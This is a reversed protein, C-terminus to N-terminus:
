ASRLRPTGTLPLEVSRGPEPLLVTADATFVTEGRQNTGSTTLLVAHREDGGPMEQHWRDAVRGALHLCDGYLLPTSLHLRLRWLFGTDGCWHTIHQGALAFVLETPAAPAGLGAEHSAASDIWADHRDWQTWGTQPNRRLRGPLASLAKLHLNGAQVSRAEAITWVFLDSFTLPGKLLEPLLDGPETENWFRPRHGRGAPENELREVINNVDTASYQHIGREPLGRERVAVTAGVDAVPRGDITYSTETVIRTTAPSKSDHAVDVISSRAGLRAGLPIRDSWTARMSETREVLDHGPLTDLAGSSSPRRVALVFTPPALMTGHVSGAGYQVDTYLPDTDGTAEVFRSVNLWTAVGIGDQTDPALHGLYRTTAEAVTAPSVAAPDLERGVPTSPPSALNPQTDTM